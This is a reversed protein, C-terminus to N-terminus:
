FGSVLLKGGLAEAPRGWIIAKPNHKYAHKQQNSGRFLCFCEYSRSM